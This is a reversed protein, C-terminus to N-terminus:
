NRSKLFDRFNLTAFILQGSFKCARFNLSWVYILKLHFILGEIFMRLVGYEIIDEDDEYDITEAGLEKLIGSTCDNFTEM